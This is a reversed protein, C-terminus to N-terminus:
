NQRVAMGLLRETMQLGRRQPLRALKSQEMLRAKSHRLSAEAEVKEDQMARCKANLDDLSRQLEASKSHTKVLAEKLTTIEAQSSQIHATHLKRLAHHRALLESNGPYRSEIHANRSRLERNQNSMDRLRAPPTQLTQLEHGAFDPLTANRIASDRLHRSAQKAIVERMEGESGDTDSLLNAM